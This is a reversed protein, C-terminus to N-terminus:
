GHEVVVGGGDDGFDPVVGVDELVRPDTVAVVDLLDRIQEKELQGVLHGLQAKVVRDRRFEAPRHEGALATVIEFDM